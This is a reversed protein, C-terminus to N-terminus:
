NTIRLEYSTIRFNSEAALQAYMVQTWAFISKSAEDSLQENHGNVPKIIRLSRPAILAALQPIDAYNLIQPIFIESPLDCSEVLRYSALMKDCVTEVCRDDLGAAFLAVLATAGEGWLSIQSADMNDQAVLIDLGRLVDWTWQGLLPKGLIISNNTIIRRDAQTEGVGRQDITFIARGQQIYEDMPTAEIAAAKGDPHLRFVVPPKDVNKPRLLLAPILIGPESVYLLKECIHGDEEIREVVRAELPSRVPFGGFVKDMLRNRLENQWATLADRDTPISPESKTTLHKSYVTFITDTDSPWSGSPFCNLTDEEPPEPNIGIEPQPKGDGRGKLWRDFWGYVAERMPQHYGHPVYEEAIAIKEEADYLRYIERARDYVERAGVIPFISDRIGACILLPRPAILGIIGDEEAYRMVNPVCECACGIGRFFLDRYLTVAAVPASVAIRDDLASLYTTQNGGGSCGTCGIRTEDVEERACLYDLARINDWMQLGEIPLDGPLMAFGESHGQPTREGHGSADIFFVVFGRKALGISISQYLPYRKGHERAHGHVHIVAPVPFEVERPLYLNSTVLFNPRSEFVIKEIIYDDREVTGIICPNLPTREIDLGGMSAFLNARIKAKASEWENLTTFNQQAHPLSEAAYRYYEAMMTEYPTELMTLKETDM